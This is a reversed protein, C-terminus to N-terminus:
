RGCGIADISCSRIPHLGGSGIDDVAALTTGELKAGSAIDVVGEM